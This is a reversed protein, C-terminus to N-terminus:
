RRISEDETSRARGGKAVLANIAYSWQNQWIVHALLGARDAYLVLSIAIEKDGPHPASASPIVLTAWRIVTLEQPSKGATVGSALMVVHAPDSREALFSLGTPPKPLMARAKALRFWRMK